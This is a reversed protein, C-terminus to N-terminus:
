AAAPAAPASRLVAIRRLGACLIAGCLELAALVVLGTADSGTAHRLFGVISPGFFGGSSGITNVLAIGAAASPGTLFRAPLCWFSTMFLASCLPIAVLPILRVASSPLLGVGVCGMCGIVLGLAALACREGWRDSWIGALPYAIVGCLAIGGTITATASDSTHLAERLLTPTWFVFALAVTYFAFYPAAILWVTRNGLARLPSLGTAGTLEQEREICRTLWDRQERQLWGADKPRETLYGLVIAGLLVPPLGEILFLWQWGSLGGVGKLALLAGGLPGGLAQSLPIAIMFGSLARARCSEPFWHGLYYIVGPFLGAEAVGLFFRVAYFQAPTRVWMMACGLLGWTIAIRALWRRAGMRALILNSPVEFLAYGIFFIGAGLGFAASSFNLESNMQLAAIGVNARDLYAFVYLAFLIPVVRLSVRRMTLAEADRNTVTAGLAGRQDPM